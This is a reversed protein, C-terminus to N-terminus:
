AVPRVRPEAAAAPADATATDTGPGAAVLRLCVIALTVMVISGTLGLVGGVPLLAGIEPTPPVAALLNLTFVIGFASRWPASRASSSCCCSSCWRATPM